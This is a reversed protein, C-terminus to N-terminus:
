EELEEVFKHLNNKYKTERLEAIMRHPPTASNFESILLTRLEKLDQPINRLLLSKAQGVLLNRIAEQIIQNESTTPYHYVLEDVEKIFLALYLPDGNFKNIQNLHNM